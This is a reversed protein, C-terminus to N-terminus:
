WITNNCDKHRTYNGCFHISHGVYYRYKQKDFNDMESYFLLFFTLPFIRLSKLIDPFSYIKSFEM